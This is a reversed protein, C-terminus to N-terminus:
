KNFAFPPPEEVLPELGKLRRSNARLAKWQLRLTEYRINEKAIDLAVQKRIREEQRSRETTEELTLPGLIQDPQTFRPRTPTPQECLRLAEFPLGLAVLVEDLRGAEILRAVTPRVASALWALRREDNTKVRETRIAPPFTDSIAPLLIGRRELLLSLQFYWWDQDPLGNECAVLYDLAHRGKLEVEFRVANVYDDNDSERMKDYIRFMIDSSRAGIYVTDGDGHSVIRRVSIPRSKASDRAALAAEEVISLTIDAVDSPYWFTAQIDLRPCNEWPLGLEILDAAWSGSARAYFGNHGSGVFFKGVAWGRYGDAMTECPEEHYDRLAAVSCVRSLAWQVFRDTDPANPTTLKVYDPGSCWAMPRRIGIM